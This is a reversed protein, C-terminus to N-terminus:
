GFIYDIIYTRAEPPLGDPPKVFKARHIANVAAEDMAKNGSSQLVRVYLLDGQQTIQFSVLVRGWLAFPGPRTKILADIVSKTFADSKGGAGMGRVQMGGGSVSAQQQPRPRQPKRDYHAKIQASLDDAAADLLAEIDPLTPQGGEHKAEEEAKKEQPEEKAEQEQPNEPPKDAIVEEQPQSAAQQPQPPAPIPAGNAGEQWKTTKSQLDPDPVLEVSISDGGQGRRERELQEQRQLEQEIADLGGIGMVEAVIVGVYLLTVALASAWLIREGREAVTRIRQDADLVGFLGAVPAGPKKGAAPPSADAHPETDPAASTEAALESAVTALDAM